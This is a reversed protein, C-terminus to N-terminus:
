IITRGTTGRRLHSRLAHDGVKPMPLPSCKPRKNSRRPQSEPREPHRHWNRMPTRSSGNAISTSPPVWSAGPQEGNGRRTALGGVLAPMSRGAIPSAKPSSSTTTGNRKWFSAVLALHLLTDTGPIIQLFLGGNEEAWAVGTTRSPLVFIHRQSPRMMWDTFAVTKTEFPDTGSIFVVEAQAWDDYSASFPNIGADDLGATDNGPGPKDHPAYAPTEISEFALKSIAYTNEFYQYSYTKMGWASRGHTDLVHRSVEAMIQFATDWSIPRLEGGVRLLPQSLRDQTPTEPHFPKQALCGGRISHNGGPNVVKAEPDPLVLVHHSRGDVMCRGVQNETIGYGSYPAAPYGVGLANEEPQSGGSTGEPWTYVKYGCGVICYDCATSVVNADLTPLPIHRPTPQTM